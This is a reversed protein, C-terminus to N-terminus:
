QEINFNMNGSGDTDVTMVVDKDNEDREPFLKNALNVVGLLFLSNKYDAETLLVEGCKPCKANVWNKYDTHSISM